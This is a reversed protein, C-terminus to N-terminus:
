KFNKLFREIIAACQARLVDEQPELCQDQTGKIIGNAVCWKMADAAFESVQEADKFQTLEVTKDNDYNKYVAYRCMATAMQERTIKDSPGFKESNGYGTMIGSENAWMVAKSYFTDEAVDVFAEADFAVEPENEMRYLVVAFQARNLADAPGFVRERLGTMIGADYVYAVSDYYWDGEKVDDFPLVKVPEETEPIFPTGNTTVQKFSWTQKAGTIEESLGLATGNGTISLYQGTKVNKLAYFGEEGEVAEMTWLQAADADDADKQTITGNEAAALSKESNFNKLVYTKHDKAVPIWMQDLSGVNAWSVVSAGSATSGEWVAAVESNEKNTVFVASDVGKDSVLDKEVDLSKVYIYNDQKDFGKSGNILLEGTSLQLYCRNYGAIAGTEYPIWAGTGDNQTNIFIESLSGTGAIVRGDQLTYVYPSGGYTGNIGPLVQGPDSPNWNYPDDAIKYFSKIPNSTGVGEYVMMWKGNELQTVVPMGPRAHVNTATFSVVDVLDGWNKGDTTIQYVLKQGNAPVREDSYYCILQHDYFVFFPEWVPDYGMINRGGEAITSLYTWNRGGDTSYYLDLSTKWLGGYGADSVQSPNEEITVADGACLLTGAKLTGMDEPLVFLQPCNHMSWPHRIAGETGEEAEVASDPIGNKYTVTFWEDPHVSDDNVIEGVKDWTKGKDKSEYIPFVYEGNAAESPLGSEFTCYLTGDLGEVIRPSLCQNRGIYNNTPVSVIWDDGEKPMDARADAFNWFQKGDDAKETLEVYYEDIEQAYPASNSNLSLYKGTEKNKLRSYGDADTDEVVWVQADTDADMNQVVRTGSAEMMKDSKANKLKIENAAETAVKYWRQDMSGSDTWKVVYANDAASGQWVGLLVNNAKNFVSYQTTDVELATVTVYQNSTINELTFTVKGESDATFALGEGNVTIAKLQAGKNATVTFEQSGGAKTRATEPTITANEASAQIVYNGSAELSWVQADNSLDEATQMVNRGAGYLVTDGRTVCLGSEVNKIRYADETGDVAELTWLQNDAGTAAQQQLAESGNPGLVLFSNANLLQYEGDEVEKIAWWHDAKEERGWAISNNGVGMGQNNNEDIVLDFGGNSLYYTQDFATDSSGGLDTTEASTTMVGGPVVMVASLLGAVVKKWNRNRM